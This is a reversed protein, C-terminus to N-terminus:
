RNGSAASCAGQGTVGVDLAYRATITTDQEPRNGRMDTDFTISESVVYDTLDLEELDFVVVAQGVPFDDQSAILVRPLGPSEVYIAVSDVFSLDGGSPSTVQLELETMYVESIDGPEVGQNELEASQTLDMATFESFGFDGIVEDILTGRSITSQAEDEITIRFLSSCAMWGLMSFVALTRSTM